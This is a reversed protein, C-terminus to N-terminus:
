KLYPLAAKFAQIPALASLIPTQDVYQYQHDMNQPANAAVDPTLEVNDRGQIGAAQHRYEFPKSTLFGTDIIESYNGFSSTKADTFKVSEIWVRGSIDVVFKWEVQRGDLTSSFDYGKAKGALSHTVDYPKGLMNRQFDPIFGEPYRASSLYARMQDPRVGSSNPHGPQVRTLDELGRSRYISVESDYRDKNGLKDYRRDNGVHFYEGVEKALRVPTAQSRELYFNLTPHLKTEQTYLTGKKYIFDTGERNFVKEASCRWVGDSNSRYFLRPYMQNGVRVFAIAELYSDTHPGKTVPGFYFTQGDVEIVRQVKFWGENLIKTTVPPQSNESAVKDFDGKMMEQRQEYRFRLQEQNLGSDVKETRMRDLYMEGFIGTSGDKMRVEYMGNPTRRIITAEGSETNVKSGESYKRNYQNLEAQTLTKLGTRGGGMQIRMEYVLERGNHTVSIIKGPSQEGNSRPVIVNEDVRYPVSKGRENYFAAVRGVDGTIGEEMLKRREDKSFGAEELIRAKQMLESPTFKGEGGAGVEHAKLVADKQSTSLERGLVAEAKGARPELSLSSNELNLDVWANEKGSMILLSGPKQPLFAVTSHGDRFPMTVTDASKVGAGKFADAVNGMETRQRRQQTGLITVQLQDVPGLTELQPKILDMTASLHDYDIERSGVRDGPVSYGLETSPTLHMLANGNPGKVFVALCGWLGTTVLERGPAAFAAAGTSVVLMKGGDRGGENLRMDISGHTNTWNTPSWEGPRIQAVRVDLPLLPEPVDFTKKATELVTKRADIQALLEAKGVTIDSATPLREVRERADGLEGLASDVKTEKGLDMERSIVEGVYEGIEDLKLQREMRGAKIRAGSLKAQVDSCAKKGPEYFPYVMKGEVKDIKRGLEWSRSNWDALKEKTPNDRSIAELEKASSKVQEAIETLEARIEVSISEDFKIEEQRNMEDKPTVDNYKKKPGQRMMKGTLHGSMKLSGVAVYAHFLEEEFNDFFDKLNGKYFGNQVAGITLMTAAEINGSIVLQQIVKRTATDGIEKAVIDIASKFHEPNAVGKFRLVQKALARDIGKGVGEAVKGAGHFMGLTVSSWLIKQMADPMEYLWKEELGISVAIVNHALEFATGEALIGGAMATGGVALNGADYAVVAARGLETYRALRSGALFTRAGVSLAGKAMSAVGGSLVILPANILLEEVIFDFHDETINFWENQPDFTENYVDWVAKKDPSLKDVNFNNLLGYATLDKDVQEQKLLDIFQKIQADNMGDAKWQAKYEDSKDSIKEEAEKTIESKKSESIGEKVKDFEEKLAEAGLTEVTKYAGISALFDMVNARQSNLDAENAVDKFDISPIDMLYRLVGEGTKRFMGVVDPFLEELSKDPEQIVKLSAAEGFTKARDTFEQAKEKTKEEGLRIRLAKMVVGGSDQFLESIGLSVHSILEVQKLRLKQQESINEKTEQDELVKTLSDLFEKREEDTTMGDLMKKFDERSEIKGFGMSETDIGAFDSMLESDMLAQVEEPTRPRGDDNAMDVVDEVGASKNMKDRLSTVAKRFEESSTREIYFDMGENNASLGNLVGLDLYEGFGLVDPASNGKDWAIAGDESVKLSSGHGDRYDQLAKIGAFLLQPNNTLSVHLKEQVIQGLTDSDKVQYLNSNKFQALGAEFLVLKSELEKDIREINEINGTALLDGLGKLQKAKVEEPEKSKDIQKQFDDLRQFVVNTKKDSVKKDEKTDFMDVKKQETDINKQGKEIGM